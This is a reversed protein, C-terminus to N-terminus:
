FVGRVLFSAVRPFHWILHQKLDFLLFTLKDRYNAVFSYKKWSFHSMNLYQGRQSCVKYILVKHPLVAGKYGSPLYKCLNHLYQVTINLWSNHLVRIPYNRTVPMVRVIERGMFDWVKEIINLDPVSIAMPHHIYGTAGCIRCNSAGYPGSCQWTSARISSKQPWTHKRCFRSPKRVISKCFQGCERKWRYHGLLTTALSGWVKVYVIQNRNVM